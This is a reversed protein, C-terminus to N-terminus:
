YEEGHKIQDFGLGQQPHEDWIKARKQICLQVADRWKVPTEKSPTTYELMEGQTTAYWEGDQAARSINEIYNLGKIAQIIEEM